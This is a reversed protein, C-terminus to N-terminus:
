NGKIYEHTNLPSIKMWGVGTEEKKFFFSLLSSSRSISNIGCLKMADVRTKCQLM